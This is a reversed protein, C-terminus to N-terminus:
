ILAARMGYWLLLAAGVLLVGFTCAMGVIRLRINERVRSVGLAHVLRGFVLTVGLAHVAAVAQTQTELFFILLLALPVYEAFNGHARIAKRLGAHADDGVAVGLTRRLHVVRVGLLVFIAALVAAYLPTSLM